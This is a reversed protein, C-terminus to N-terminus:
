LEELHVDHDAIEATARAGHAFPQTQEALPDDGHISGFLHEFRGAFIKGTVFVNMEPVASKLIERNVVAFQIDRQHNEHQMIQRLRLADKSLGRSRQLGAAAQEHQIHHRVVVLLIALRHTM